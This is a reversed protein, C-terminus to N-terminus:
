QKVGSSVMYLTYGDLHNYIVLVVAIIRMLEYYVQKKNEM